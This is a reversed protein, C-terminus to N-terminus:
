TRDPSPTNVDPAPEQTPAPVPQPILMVRPGHGHHRAFMAVVVLGLLIWLWPFERPAGADRSGARAPQSPGPPTARPPQPPTETVPAEDAKPPMPALWAVGLFVGGAAMMALINGLQGLSGFDFFVLKVATAALLFTGLGWLGRSATRTAWWTMGAGVMALCLSVVAPLLVRDLDFITLVGPPGVWRLVMALAVSIVALTAALSFFRADQARDVPMFRVTLLLYSLAVLEYAVAWPEREIHFLAQFFLYGGFLILGLPSLTNPWLRGQPLLWRAQLSAFLASAVMWTMVVSVHPAQLHQNFAQAWPWILVPLMSRAIGAVSEGGEEHRGALGALLAFLVQGAVMLPVIAWDPFGNAGAYGSLFVGAGL